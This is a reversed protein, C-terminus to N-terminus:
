KPKLMEEIRPTCRRGECPGSGAGTAKKLGQVTNVGKELHAMFSKKKIGKCICVAKLGDIIEEQNM